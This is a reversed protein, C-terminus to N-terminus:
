ASGAERGWPTVLTASSSSSDDACTTDSWARTVGSFRFM